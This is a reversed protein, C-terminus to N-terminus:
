RFAGNAREVAKRGEDQIEPPLSVPCDAPVQVTKIITRVRESAAATTQQQETVAAQAETRTTDTITEGTTDRVIRAKDAAIQANAVAVTYEITRAEYGEQRIDARIYQWGFYGAAVIGAFILAKVWLPIPM